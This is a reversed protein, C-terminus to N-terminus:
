FGVAADSSCTQTGVLCVKYIFTGRVRTGFRDTYAGASPVTAIRSGDRYVDVGALAPGNWRLDVATTSSTTRTSTTLAIEHMSLPVHSPRSVSIAASVAVSVVIATVFLTAKDM